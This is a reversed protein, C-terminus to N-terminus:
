SARQATEETKTEKPVATITVKCGHKETLIESLTKLMRDINLKNAM